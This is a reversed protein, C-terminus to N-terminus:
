HEYKRLQEFLEKKYTESFQYGTFLSRKIQGERVRKDFWASFFDAYGKTNIDRNGMAVMKPYEKVFMSKSVIWKNISLLYFQVDYALYSLPDAHLGFFGKEVTITKFLNRLVREFHISTDKEFYKELTDSFRGNHLKEITTDFEENSTDYVSSSVLRRIFTEYDKALLTKKYDSEQDVHVVEPEGDKGCNSYDLMVMDHGGSPCDCIYIGTDPYGWEEIMFKSGFEGGISYPKTRGIGMIGTICIHDNAWSTRETTPSCDKEPTGGNQLRMMEIYSAPLKYGLEAELSAILEDSPSEDVYENMAYESNDWFGTFDFDHFIGAM